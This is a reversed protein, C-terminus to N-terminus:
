AKTPLTLHTYSVPYVSGVQSPFCYTLTVLAAAAAPSPMGTFSKLEKGTDLNFRALRASCCVLYLFCSLLGIEDAVKSLGWSYM